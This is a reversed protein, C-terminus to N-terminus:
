EGSYKYDKLDHLICGLQIIELTDKDEIGEMKAIKIGLKEVREIHEYNHSFDNSKLEEKILIRTNEIIDGSNM